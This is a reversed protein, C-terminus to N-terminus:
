RLAHDNSTSPRRFHCFRQQKILRGLLTSALRNVKWSQYGLAWIDHQMGGCKVKCLGKNKSRAAPNIMTENGSNVTPAIRYRPRTCRVRPHKM